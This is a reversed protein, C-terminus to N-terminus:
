VKELWQTFLQARQPNTISFYVDYIYWDVRRVVKQINRQCNIFQRVLSRFQSACGDFFQKGENSRALVTSSPKLIDTIVNWDDKRGETPKSINELNFIGSSNEAAWLLYKHPIPIIIEVLMKALEEFAKRREEAELLYNAAFSNKDTDPCHISSQQSPDFIGKYVETPGM